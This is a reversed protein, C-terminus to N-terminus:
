IASIQRKPQVNARQIAVLVAATRNEVHLKGLISRVHQQVTRISLGLILAIENDRKAEALWTLVETERRSLGLRRLKTFDPAPTKQIEPQLQKIMCDVEFATAIQPALQGAMYIDKKTFDRHNRNITLGGLVQPTFIPIGIQYRIHCPVFIDHYLDTRRLERQTIFQSLQIPGAERKELYKFMPSQAKVLEGAHSLFEPLSQAPTEIMLNTEIAYDGNKGFVELAYKSNPFLTDLAHFVREHFPAQGHAHIIRIVDLIPQM